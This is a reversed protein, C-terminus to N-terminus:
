FLLNRQTCVKSCPTATLSCSDHWAAAVSDARPVNIQMTRSRRAPLDDLMEDSFGESFGDLPIADFAVPMTREPSLESLVGTAESGISGSPPARAAAGFTGARDEQVDSSGEEAHFNSEWEAYVSSSDAAKACGKCVRVPADYGLHSLQRRENSCPACFISGCSRCHHRRRFFSFSAACAVCTEAEDDPIWHSRLMM